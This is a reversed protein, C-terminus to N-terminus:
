ILYLSYLGYRAKFTKSSLEHFTLMTLAYSSGVGGIQLIM